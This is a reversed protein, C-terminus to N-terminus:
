GQETEEAGDPAETHEGAFARWRLAVAAAVAGLDIGHRAQFERM